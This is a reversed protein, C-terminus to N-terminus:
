FSNHISFLNKIGYLVLKQLGIYVSTFLTDSTIAVFHFDALFLGRCALNDRQIIVRAVVTGRCLM